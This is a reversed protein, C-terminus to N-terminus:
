VQYIGNGSEKSISFFYIEYFFSFTVIFRKTHLATLFSGVFFPNGKTKEFVVKSLPEVLIPPLNLTDSVLNNVEEIGLSKLTITTTKTGKKLFQDL